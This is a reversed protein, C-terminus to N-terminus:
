YTSAAGEFAGLDDRVVLADRFAEMLPTWTSGSRTLLAIKRDLPLRLPLVVLRSDLRTAPMSSPVFSIFDTTAVVMLAGQSVSGVEMAIAPATMGGAEFIRVFAQGASSNMNPAIWAYQHVDRLGVKARGSLPHGRRVVINLRDRSLVTSHLTPVNDRYTPAVAMDLRGDVVSDVLEDSLATVLSVRLAPRRPLLDALAPMVFKDLTAGTAGIRLLGAQGAQLAGTHRLADQYEAHLRRAHEIFALGSASLWIRRASREFLKLGTESELRRLSKSLAPQTVGCAAAARGMHGADAMALFYEVDRFSLNM